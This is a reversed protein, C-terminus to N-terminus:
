NLKPDVYFFPVNKVGTYHKRLYMLEESVDAFEELTTLYRTNLDILTQSYLDIFKDLSISDDVIAEDRVYNEGSDEKFFM